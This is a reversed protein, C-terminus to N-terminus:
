QPWQSHKALMTPGTRTNDATMNKHFQKIFLYSSSFYILCVLCLYCFICHFTALIPMPWDISAVLSLLMIVDFLILSFALAPAPALAPDILFLHLLLIWLLFIVFICFYINRSNINLLGCRSRCICGGSM